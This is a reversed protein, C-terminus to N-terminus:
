SSKLSLLGLEGRASDVFDLVEEWSMKPMSKNQNTILSGVIMMAFKQYGVLACTKIAIDPLLDGGALGIEHAMFDKGEVPDFVDSVEEGKLGFAKCLSSLLVRRV